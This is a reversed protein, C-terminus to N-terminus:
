QDPGPRDSTRGDAATWQVLAELAPRAGHPQPHNIIAVVVYRKGSNSLVYGAIGTVDRLSGSKLHARGLNARTRQMTGDVGTVPLSSMLESMAPGAWRSQLLRALLLASTRSERSLGSGNDIVTGQAATGFRTALWQQVVERAGDPTGVGRQTQALTLFLQQAMVNNSYKNIDRVVEALAPSVLSFSPPAAPATGDRVIGSITGGMERWLGLLLRENYSRPDAYALPWQREGCALPFAGTFRLRSPDTFDAKLAARWDDCPAVSLAVSADARV